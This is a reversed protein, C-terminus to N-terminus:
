YHESYHQGGFKHAEDHQAKDPHKKCGAFHGGICKKDKIQEGCYPCIYCQKDENFMALLKCKHVERKHIDLDCRTDFIINCEVCKWTGHPAKYHIRQERIRALHAKNKESKKNQSAIYSIRCSNSCFRGSGYSHDHENGCWECVKGEYQKRQAAIFKQYREKNMIKGKINNGCCKNNVKLVIFFQMLRNATVM